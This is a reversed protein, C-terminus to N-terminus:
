ELCSSGIQAAPHCESLHLWRLIANRKKKKKQLYQKDRSPKFFHMKVATNLLSFVHETKQSM